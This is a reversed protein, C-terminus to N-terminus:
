YDSSYCDAEYQRLSATISRFSAGGGESVVRSIEEAVFDIRGNGTEAGAQADTQAGSAFIMAGELPATVALALALVGSLLGGLNKRKCM